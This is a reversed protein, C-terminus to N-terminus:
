FNVHYNNAHESARYVFEEIPDTEDYIKSLYRNKWREDSSDDFMYDYGLVVSIYVWIMEPTQYEIDNKTYEEYYKVLSSLDGDEDIKERVVKRQIIDYLKNLYRQHVTDIESPVQMTDNRYNKSIKLKENIFENIRKM